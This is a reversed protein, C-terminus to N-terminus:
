KSLDSFFRLALFSLQPLMAVAVFYKVMSKPILWWIPGYMPLCYRGGGDWHHVHRGGRAGKPSGFAEFSMALEAVPVCFSWSACGGQWVQHSTNLVTPKGRKTATETLVSIDMWPSTGFWGPSNRKKKFWGMKGCGFASGENVTGRGFMDNIM